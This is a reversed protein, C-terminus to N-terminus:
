DTITYDSSNVARLAVMVEYDYIDVMNYTSSSDNSVFRATGYM